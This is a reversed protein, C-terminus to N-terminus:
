HPPQEDTLVDESALRNRGTQKAVYLARDARQYMSAATDGERASAVGISVTVVGVDPNGTHPLAAEFVSKRVLEACLLAGSLPTNELLVAFEEGGLRAPSDLDRRMVTRLCQAIHQLVADGAPHGYTDNYRKFFDVDLMILSAPQKARAFHAVAHALQQDFRRRNPLATLADTASITRLEHVQVRLIGILGNTYDALEAIEDSGAIALSGSWDKDDAIRGFQARLSALRRVVVRDIVTIIGLGTLGILLLVANRAATLTESTEISQRRPWTLRIEGISNRWIGNIPAALKLHDPLTAITVSSKAVAFGRHPDGSKAPTAQEPTRVLDFDLKTQARVTDLIPTDLWRGLVVHGHAPGRGESTLLPQHCLFAFREAILTVHCGNPQVKVLDSFVALPSQNFEKGLQDDRLTDSFRKAGDVSPVEISQLRQKEPNVLVLWDIHALRLTEPPLEERVFKRSPKDAHEYLATWNSWSGMLVGLQQLQADMAAMLRRLDGSAETREIVVNARELHYQVLWLSAASVALLIALLLLAIKARLGMGNLSYLM